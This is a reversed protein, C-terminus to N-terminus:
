LLMCALSLHHCFRQGSLRVIQSFMRKTLPLAPHYSCIIVEASIVPFVILLFQFAQSKRHGNLAKGSLELIDERFKWGLSRYHRLFGEFFDSHLATNKRTFFDVLSARYNELVVDEAGQSLLIKTLHFSIQKFATSLGPVRIRRANTHTDVFAKVAVEKPIDYPLQKLHPVLKNCLIGRTKDSLQLEDAGTTTILDVLPTIFRLILVNSPQKKIYTDVLDLVRNKFHTAQRQANVISSM